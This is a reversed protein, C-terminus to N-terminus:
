YADPSQHSMLSIHLHDTTGKHRLTRFGMLWFYGRVLQNKWEARNKTRLDIAHTYGTYQKYHLSQSKSKLGMKKYDEPLRQGDTILLDKDIHILTSTALRLVPHIQSM